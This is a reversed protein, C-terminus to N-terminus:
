AGSAALSQSGRAPRPHLGAEQRGGNKQCAIFDSGVRCNARSRNRMMRPPTL